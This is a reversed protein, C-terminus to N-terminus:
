KANPNQNPVGVELVDDWDLNPDTLALEEPLATILAYRIVYEGPELADLHITEGQLKFELARGDATTVELGQREATETASTPLADTIRLGAVRTELRLRLTVAYGAGGGQITKTLNVPGMRLTTERQRTVNSLPPELRFDATSLSPGELRVWRTGPKGLNEPDARPTFPVTIPDLRLAYLGAELEGFSYRGDQDTIAYRGTSLYVRAGPLPEDRDPTFRGDDDADFYVRGIIASRRTFANEDRKVAATAQNSTVEIQGGAGTRATASAQNVIREPLAPTAVSSFRLRVTAEPNLRGINWTLVQRGDKVSVTPDAIANTDLQSSGRKYALGIPMLDTVTTNELATNRSANRVRLEYDLVGGISVSSQLAIKEIQLIAGIVDTQVTNSAVPPPIENSLVAGQNIITSADPANELARAKFSLQLSAGAPLSPFTWTLARSSPDFAVSVTYSVSQNNADQVANITYDSPSSLKPDLVDQVRVNTQASGSTNSLTFGYQLTAGQQDRPSSVTKTITWAETLPRLRTVLDLTRNTISKQGGSSARLVFGWGAGSNDGNVGVPPTVELIFDASAGPLLPGLDPQGDNDTDPLTRSGDASLWRVTWGNPLASELALKIRDPVTGANLVTNTFRLPVGEFGSQGQRDAPDPNETAKPNKAPGLWVAYSVATPTIQDIRDRTIDTANPDRSSTVRLAVDLTELTPITAPLTVRLIVDAERGPDLTVSTFPTVGDSGLVELTTGPPLYVGSVSADPAITFTDTLNGTNRVTNKFIVTRTGAVTPITQADSSSAGDGSRTITWTIGTVPDTLSYSGSAPGEAQANPGIAVASRSPVPTITTNSPLTRTTDTSDNYAIVGINTVSAGGPLLTGLRLTFQLSYSSSPGLTNEPTFTTPALDRMLLGIRSASTSPTTTWTNGVYYIVSSGGVAGSTGTAPVGTDLITGTPITDTILVGDLLVGDVIVAGPVSRASRRGLNSGQLTYTIRGSADPGLASKNLSLNADSSVKVRAINNNDLPGGPGGGVSRGELDILSVTGDALGTPVQAVVVLSVRENAALPVPATIEPEGADLQGNGNLDRYIKIGTLDFDDTGSQLVNLAVQDAGNGTNTVTYAFNLSSGSLALRDNSPDPPLAFSTTISPANGADPKVSLAYVQQVVTQAVNSLAVNVTGDPATFTISAQNEIPTGVPTPGSQAQATWFASLILTLIAVLANRRVESRSIM